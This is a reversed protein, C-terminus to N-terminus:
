YPRPSNIIFAVNMASTKWLLRALCYSLKSCVSHDSIVNMSLHRRPHSHPPMLLLLPIVRGAGCKAHAFNESFSPMKEQLRLVSKWM